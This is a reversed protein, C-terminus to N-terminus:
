NKGLKGSTMQVGKVSRLFEIEALQMKNIQRIIWNQQFQWKRIYIYKLCIYEYFQLLLLLLLLLIYYYVKIAIIRISWNHMTHIGHFVRM